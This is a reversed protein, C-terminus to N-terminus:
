MSPLRERDAFAPKRELCLPMHLLHGRRSRAFPAYLAAASYVAVLSLLTPWHFDEPRPFVITTAFALLEFLNQFASEATSFNGRQDAEVEQAHTLM